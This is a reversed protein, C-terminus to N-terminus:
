GIVSGDIGCGRHRTGSSPSMRVKSPSAGDCDATLYASSRPGIKLEREHTGAVDDRGAGVEDGVEVVFAPEALVDTAVQLRQPDQAAVPQEGGVVVLRVPM